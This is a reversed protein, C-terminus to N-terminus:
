LTQLLFSTRTKPCLLNTTMPHVCAETKPAPAPKSGLPLKYAHANGHKATATTLQHRNLCRRIFVRAHPTRTRAHMRTKPQFPLPAPGRDPAIGHRPTRARKDTINRTHAHTKTECNQTKFKVGYKPVINLNQVGTPQVIVDTRTKRKGMHREARRTGRRFGPQRNVAPGLMNRCVFTYFKWFRASTMSHLAPPLGDVQNGDAATFCLV